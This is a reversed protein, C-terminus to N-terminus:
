TNEHFMALAREKCEEITQEDLSAAISDAMESCEKAKSDTKATLALSLALTLAEEPTTPSPLNM